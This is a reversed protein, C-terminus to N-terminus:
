CLTAKIEMRGGIKSFWINAKSLPSIRKAKSSKLIFIEEYSLFSITVIFWYISLFVLFHYLLYVMIQIHISFVFHKKSQFVIWFVASFLCFELCVRSSLYFVVFMRKLTYRCEQATNVCRLFRSLSPCRFTFVTLVGM